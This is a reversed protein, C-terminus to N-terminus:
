FNSIVGGLAVADIDDAKGSTVPTVDFTLKGPL